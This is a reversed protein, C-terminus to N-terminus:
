DVQKFDKKKMIVILNDYRGIPIKQVLDTLCFSIKPLRYAIPIKKSLISFTKFVYKYDIIEFKSFIKRVDDLSYGRTPNHNKGFIPLLDFWIFIGNDKLVREAEKVARAIDDDELLHEFTFYQSILDFSNDSFPLKTADGKLFKIGPNILNAMHIRHSSIDIGVLKNSNGKIDAFFRLWDGTGCGIDLINKESLYIKNKNFIEIVSKQSRQKLYLGTHNRMSYTFNSDENIKEKELRKKYFKIVKDYNKM